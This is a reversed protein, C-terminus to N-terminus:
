WRATRRTPSATPRADLVDDYRAMGRRTATWPSSGARPSRRSSPARGGRGRAALDHEFFVAKAGSHQLLYALEAATSRWSVSVASGGLRAMAGEIEFFEPRNRLV